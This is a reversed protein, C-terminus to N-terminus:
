EPGALVGIWGKSEFVNQVFTIILVLLLTAAAGQEQTIPTQTINFWLPQVFLVGIAEAIGVQTVTRVTRVATKHM